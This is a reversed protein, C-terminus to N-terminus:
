YYIFRFYSNLEQVARYQNFLPGAGTRQGSTSFGQMLDDVEKNIFSSHRFYYKYPLLRPSESKISSFFYSVIKKSMIHQFIPVGVISCGEHNSDWVNLRAVRKVAKHYNIALKNVERNRWADFCM